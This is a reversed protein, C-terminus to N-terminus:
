YCGNLCRGNQLMPIIILLYIRPDHIFVTYTGTTVPLMNKFTYERDSMRDGVREEIVWGIRVGRKLRERTCKGDNDNRIHYNLTEAQSTNDHWHYRCNIDHGHQLIVQSMDPVIDGQSDRSDFM